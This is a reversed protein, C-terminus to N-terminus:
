VLFQTFNFHQQTDVLFIFFDMGILQAQSTDKCEASGKLLCM